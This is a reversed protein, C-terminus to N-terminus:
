IATENEKIKKRLWAKAKRLQTKSTSESIGMLRAIEKHPYNELVYLNFVTRYGAPMQLICDMLEKANMKEIASEQEGTREPFTDKDMFVLREKKRLFALCENVTISSLWARFSGEGRYEFSSLSRFCKLFADSLIEEADPQRSLYRMCVLFMNDSYREFLMKQAFHDGQRCADIIQEETM